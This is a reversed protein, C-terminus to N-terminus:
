ERRPWQWTKRKRNRFKRERDRYIQIHEPTKLSFGTEKDVNDGRFIEIGVGIECTYGAFRIYRDHGPDIFVDEHCLFVTIRKIGSGSLQLPTIERDLREEVYEHNPADRYSSFITVVCGPSDSQIFKLLNFLENKGNYINSAIYRDVITIQQNGNSHSALPSFREQWLGKVLTGPLIASQGLIRAENFKTSLSAHPFRIAEVNGFVSGHVPIELIEARTDEILSLSFTDQYQELDAPDLGMNQWDINDAEAWLPWGDKKFSEFARVFIDRHAKGLETRKYHDCNLVSNDGDSNVLIGFPVWATIQQPKIKQGGKAEDIEPDLADPEIAFRVLMDCM